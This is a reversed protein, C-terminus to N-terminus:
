FIFLSYFHSAHVEICYLVICYSKYNGLKVNRETVDLLNEDEGDMKQQTIIQLVKVKDGPPMEEGADLDDNVIAVNLITIETAAKSTDQPLEFHFVGYDAIRPKKDKKMESKSNIDHQLSDIVDHDEDFKHSSGTTQFAIQRKVSKFWKPWVMSLKLHHPSLWIPECQKLAIGSHPLMRILNFEKKTTVFGGEDDDKRIKKKWSGRLVPISIRGVNMEDDTLGMRATSENLEQMSMNLETPKM